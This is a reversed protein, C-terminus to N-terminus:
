NSRTYIFLYLILMLNVAYFNACKQPDGAISTNWEVINIGNYDM